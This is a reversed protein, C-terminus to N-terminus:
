HWKNFEEFMKLREKSGDYSAKFFSDLIQYIMIKDPEWGVLCLINCNDYVKSWQAIKENTALCARIGSFKNAGVEVGVGTGCTLIGLNDTHELVKKTVKPIMDQLEMDESDNKVGLNEFEIGKECLYNSVIEIVKYGHKDGAIYIM